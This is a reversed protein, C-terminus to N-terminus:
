SRRRSAVMQHILVASPDDLRDIDDVCLLLPRGAAKELLRDRVETFMPTLSRESGGLQTVFVGLPLESSGVTARLRVVEHGDAQAASAVAEAIRSKGVGARGVLYAGAGTRVATLAAGV